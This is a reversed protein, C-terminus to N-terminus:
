FHLQKCQSADIETPCYPCKFSKVSNKSLKHISHKCLVHGCTMLMPPNEDTAQDRSVPCVFITHFQFERDLDVPVPLQKVTQWENKKSTMVSMMKLLTPLGQVGAAVTVSMPSEFSQGLLDCFRRTLEESLKEWHTPSLLDAYPSSELREAFLICGMMKSFEAQHTDFFPTLHTRAYQLAPDRGQKQLIEIYEQRHLKLELDSGTQKLKESNTTAWKLAPGLDRSKMAGLIYYMEVFSSKVGAVGEEGAENIFCDGIDFMGQRYLHSAIIQNVAHFDWDVNRYAKSIDPNFSKELQRAFKTLAINLEKQPGELQSLPAMDKLKTKRELLLLHHDSATADSAHLKVLIQEIEQIILDVTEHCKSYCLKQKKIAHDFGDKVTKLEM